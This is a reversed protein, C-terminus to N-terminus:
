EVLKDANDRRNGILLGIGVKAGLIRENRVGRPLERDVEDASELHQEVVELANPLADPQRVDLQRPQLDSWSADVICAVVAGRTATCNRPSKLFVDLKELVLELGSPSRIGALQSERCQPATYADRSMERSEGAPHHDAYAAEQALFTVKKVSRCRDAASAHSPLNTRM